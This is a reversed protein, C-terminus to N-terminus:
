RICGQAECLFASLGHPAMVIESLNRKRSCKYPIARAVCSLQVIVAGVMFYM